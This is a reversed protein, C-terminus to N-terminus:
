PRAAASSSDLFEELKWPLADLASKDLEFLDESSGRAWVREPNGKVQNGIWLRAMVQGTSDMLSVGRSTDSIGYRAWNKTRSEGIAAAKLKELSGLLSAVKFERALGPMPAVVEWKGSDPAKALTLAEGGASPHIIIQRVDNVQLALVKKDKFERAELDLVNLTGSDVVALVSESGWESLAFSQKAGDLVLEVMRVHVPPGIKPTLTAEVQPKELAKRAKAEQAENPFTLATRLKLDSIMQAVREPDARMKEPQTLQWPKDTTTRELTLSNKRAKVEIRLLSPEEVPFLQHDRWEHTSKQLAFRLAGGALYVRPDGERRLYATGDFVNEVGMHFTVSHQRAPDDKGGGQADPVYARATVIARPPKLGYRELDADTPNEDLTAKFKATAIESILTSVQMKDALSSVPSTVRWVGDQLEMVTKSQPVEVSVSTFVPAAPTGADTGREAPPNVAFLTEDAEKRQATKEEPKMVGFYAYLGLGGAAAAAALLSVLNKQKANM